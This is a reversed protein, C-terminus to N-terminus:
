NKWEEVFELMEKNPGKASFILSNNYPKTDTKIINSVEINNM